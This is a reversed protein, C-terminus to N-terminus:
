EGFPDVRPLLSLTKFFGNSTRKIGPAWQQVFQRLTFDTLAEKDRYGPVETRFARFIESEHCSGSRQLRTGAFRVFDEFQADLIEKEGASIRQPRSVEFVGAAMCAGLGTSVGWTAGGFAVKLGAATALGLGVIVGIMSAYLDPGPVYSGDDVRSFLTM